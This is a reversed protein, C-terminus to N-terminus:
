SFLSKLDGLDIGSIANMGAGFLNGYLESAAKDANVQAQIGGLGLQAGYGAGTLQGTQAMSANGQAVQM